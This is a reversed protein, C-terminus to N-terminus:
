ALITKEWGKSTPDYRCIRNNDVLDFTPRYLVTKIARLTPHKAYYDVGDTHSQGFNCLVYSSNHIPTLEPLRQMRNILQINRHDISHDFRIVSGRADAGFSEAILPIPSSTIGGLFLGGFIAVTHKRLQKLTANKDPGSKLESLECGHTISYALSLWTAAHEGINGWGSANDLAVISKNHKACLNVMGEFYPRYWPIMRPDDLDEPSAEMVALECGEVAAELAIKHDSFFQQDHDVGLLNVRYGLDVFSSNPLPNDNGRSVWWPEIAVARSLV